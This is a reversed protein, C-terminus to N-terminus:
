TYLLITYKSKDTFSMGQQIIIFANSNTIKLIRPCNCFGVVRANPQNESFVM